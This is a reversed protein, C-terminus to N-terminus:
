TVLCASIQAISSLAAAAKRMLNENLDFLTVEVPCGAHAIMQREIAAAGLM